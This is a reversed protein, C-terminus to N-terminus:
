VLATTTTPSQSSSITDSSPIQDWVDPSNETFHLVYPVWQQVHGSHLMHSQSAVQQVTSRKKFSWIGTQTVKLTGSNGVTSSSCSKPCSATLKSRPIDLVESMLENVTFKTGPLSGNKKRITYHFYNPYLRFFTLAHVLVLPLKITM